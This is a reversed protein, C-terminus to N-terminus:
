AGMEAGRQGLHGEGIWDFRLDGIISGKRRGGELGVRLYGGSERGAGPELRLLLHFVYEQHNESHLSHELDHGIPQHEM